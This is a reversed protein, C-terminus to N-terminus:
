GPIGGGGGGGHGGDCPSPDEFGGFTDGSFTVDENFSSEECVEEAAAPTGLLFGVVLLLALIKQVNKM